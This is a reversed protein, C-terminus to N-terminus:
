NQACVEFDSGEAKRRERRCMIGTWYLYFHERQGTETFILRTKQVSQHNINSSSLYSVAPYIEFNM